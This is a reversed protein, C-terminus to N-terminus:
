QVGKEPIFGEPDISAEKASFLALLITSILLTSGFLHLVQFAAPLGGYALIIGIIVHLLIMGLIVMTITKFYRSFSGKTTFWSLYGSVILVTWSFTRHIEDIIGANNLWESRMLNPYNKSIMDIAERVQTGLGM